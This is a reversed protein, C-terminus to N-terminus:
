ADAPGELVNLEKNSKRDQIIQHCGSMEMQFPTGQSSGYVKTRGASFFDTVSFDHLVDDVKKLHFGVSLFHHAEKRITNSLPNLQSSSKSQLGFEEQEIFGHSSHIEFLFLIHGSEDDVDMFELM